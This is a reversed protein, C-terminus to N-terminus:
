TLPWRISSVQRDTLPRLFRLTLLARMAHRVDQCGARGEGSFYGRGATELAFDLPLIGIETDEQEFFLM